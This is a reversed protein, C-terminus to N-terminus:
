KYSCNDGCFTAVEMVCVADWDVQCCYPDKNAACIVAVCNAKASDCNNAFPTSLAGADCPASPCTGQSESCTLSKCITRVESVCISDWTNNCCFADATCIDSVCKNTVGATACGAFLKGGTTCLVHGCACDTDAADTTGDCDNDKADTCNAPQEASANVNQVCQISGAVCHQTGAACVGLKGTNCMNGGGPDGNDVVGDCNDDVNNCVEASAMNNQVCALAGNQCKQTGAACAGFQGTNCAGGGDPNNEDVKGDCNDDIGNCKEAAPKVTQACVLKGGSCQFLGPKCAGLLGTDCAGGGEPNNEDVKGDCNDDLGNCKEASPQVLQNCVLKGGQCAQKGAACVGKLGTDCAGGGDPNNEDTQGDCNDDIGNCKEAVPTVDGTCAGWKGDACIQKGDKCAGVNQTEKSGTYCAQDKGDLCSCGEDVQGDCNDDVGDCKEKASPKGPICPVPAGDKCGDVTVKCVGLGCTVSDINEDVQGDCNDDKGNCVEASPTVEGDCAGWQGHEDCTQSGAKCVGVGEPNSQGSMCKQTDGQKCSCGEDVRGDCNDDKGNCLEASGACEAGTGTGGGSGGGLTSGSQACAGFLSPVLAGLGLLLWGNLRSKVAAPARM